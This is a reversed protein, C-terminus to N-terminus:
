KKNNQIVFGIAATGAALIVSLVWVREIFFAATYGCLLIIIFYPIGAKINYTKDKIYQVAIFLLLGVIPSFYIPNM